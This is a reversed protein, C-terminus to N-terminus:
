YYFFSFPVVAFSHTVSWNCCHNWILVSDSVTPNNITRIKIANKSSVKKQLNKTLDFTIKFRKKHNKNVALLWVFSLSDVVSDLDLAIADVELLVCVSVVLLMSLVILVVFKVLFWDFTDVLSFESALLSSCCCCFALALPSAPITSSSSSKAETCKISSGCKLGAGGSGFLSRDFSINSSCLCNALSYKFTHEFNPKKRSFRSKKKKM